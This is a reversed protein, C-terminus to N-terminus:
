DATETPLKRRGQRRWDDPAMHRRLHRVADRPVGNGLAAKAAAWDQDRTPITGSAANQAVWQRYWSALKATAVTGATRDPMASQRMGEIVLIGTITFGSATASSEGFDPTLVRWRDAPITVPPADIAARSDYGFATLVGRRLKDILERELDDRLSCHRMVNREYESESGGLVMIMLPGRFGDKDLRLMEQARTPDCWHRLAEELTVGEPEPPPASFSRDAM